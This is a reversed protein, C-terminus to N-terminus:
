RGDASQLLIQILNDNFLLQARASHLYSIKLIFPQPASRTVFINVRCAILDISILINEIIELFRSIHKSYSSIKIKVRTKIALGAKNTVDITIINLEAGTNILTSYKIIKNIIVPVTPTATMFFFM